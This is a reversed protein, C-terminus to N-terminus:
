PSFLHSPFNVGDIGKNKGKNEATNKEEIPSITSDLVSCLNHVIAVSISM